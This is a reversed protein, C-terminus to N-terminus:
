AVEKNLIKDLFKEEREMRNLYKEDRKQNEYVALRILMRLFASQSMKHEDALSKLNLHSQDDLSFSATHFESINKAEMPLSGVFITASLYKAFCIRYAAIPV